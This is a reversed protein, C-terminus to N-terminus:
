QTQGRQTKATAGEPAPPRSMSTQVNTRWMNVHWWDRYNRLTGYQSVPTRTIKYLKRHRGTADTSFFHQFPMAGTTMLTCTNLKNIVQNSSSLIESHKVMNKHKQTGDKQIDQLRQQRLSSTGWLFNETELFDSQSLPPKLYHPKWHFPFYSLHKFIHVSLLPIELYEHKHCWPNATPLKIDWYNLIM